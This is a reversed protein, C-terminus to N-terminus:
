GGRAACAASSYAECSDGSGWTGLDARTYKAGDMEPMALVRAALAVDCGSACAAYWVLSVRATPEPLEKYFNDSQRWDVAEARMRLQAAALAAGLPRDGDAGVDLASRPAQL